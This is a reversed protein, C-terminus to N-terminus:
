AVLRGEEAGVDHRALVGAVARCVELEDGPRHERRRRRVGPPDVDEALRVRRVGEGLVLRARDQEGSACAPRSSRTCPLWSPWPGPRAARRPAPPRWRRGSCRGRGVASTSARTPRRPCWPPSGGAPRRTRSGSARGRRRRGAARRPTADRQRGVAVRAGAVRRRHREDDGEGHPLHPQRRALGHQAAVTPIPSTTAACRCRDSRPRRALPGSRGRRATARAGTRGRPRGWRAPASRAQDRRAQRTLRRGGAHGQAPTRGVERLVRGGQPDRDVRAAGAALGTLAAFAVADRWPTRPDRPDVVADRGAKKWITTVLKNAIVGALVASGTGLVRWVLPGM